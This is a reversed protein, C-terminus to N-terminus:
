CQLSNFAQIEITPQIDRVRRWLLYFGPGTKPVPSKQALVDFDFRLPILSMRYYNAIVGNKMLM